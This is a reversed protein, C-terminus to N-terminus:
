LLRLAANLQPAAFWRPDRSHLQDSVAGPHRSVLVNRQPYNVHTLAQL